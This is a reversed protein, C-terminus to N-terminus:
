GTESFMTAVTQKRNELASSGGKEKKWNDGETNSIRDLSRDKSKRWTDPKMALSPPNPFKMNLDSPCSNSQPDELSRQVVATSSDRQWNINQRVIYKLIYKYHIHRNYLKVFEFNSNSELSVLM